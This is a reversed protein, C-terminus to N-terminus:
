AIREDLLGAVLQRMIKEEGDSPNHYPEGNLVRASWDFARAKIRLDAISAAPLEAMQDLIAWCHDAKQEWAKQVSDDDPNADNQASLAVRESDARGLEIWLEALTPVLIPTM